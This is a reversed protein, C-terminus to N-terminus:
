WLGVRQILNGLRWEIWRRLSPPRRGFYTALRAQTVLHARRGRAVDDIACLSIAQGPIGAMVNAEPPRMSLGFSCVPARCPQTTLVYDADLHERRKTANVDVAYDYGRLAETLRNLRDPRIEFFSDYVALADDFRQLRFTDRGYQLPVQFFDTRSTFHTGADGFNTTLSERPFVYYRNAEVLYKTKLPFWEDEDFTLFQEHIPDGAVLTRDEGAHWTDFADWQARTYAQGQYWPVQLFFVDSEDRLPTFPYHTYGNFWLANLAIGAIRADDTYTDIAQMAFHYYPPSVYLDDELLIIAGYERTLRGCFFFHEVLGLHQEHFIVQKDGHCWDFQDAQAVVDNNDDGRDISIILPVGDPHEATRLSALLRQLSDPRNYAMVVVAPMM